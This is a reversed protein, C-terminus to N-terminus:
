AVEKHQQHDPTMEERLPDKDAGGWYEDFKM